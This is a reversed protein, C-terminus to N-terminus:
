KSQKQIIAASVKTSTNTTRNIFRDTASFPAGWTTSHDPKRACIMVVWDVELKTEAVQQRHVVHGQTALWAAMWRWGYCPRALRQRYCGAALRRHDEAAPVIAPAPEPPNLPAEALPRQDEVSLRIIETEEITRHAPEEAAAVVFDSVGRGQIEAARKVM